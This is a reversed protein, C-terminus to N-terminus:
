HYIEIESTEQDETEKQGEEPLLSLEEPKDTESSIGLGRIPPTRASMDTFAAQIISHTKEFITQFKEIIKIKDILVNISQYSEAHDANNNNVVGEVSKLKTTLENVNVELELLKNLNASVKNEFEDFCLEFSAIKESIKDLDAIVESLRTGHEVLQHQSEYAKSECDTIRSEFSVTQEAAKMIREIDEFELVRKGLKSLHKSVLSLWLIVIIAFLLSILALIFVVTTMMDNINAGGQKFLSRINIPV